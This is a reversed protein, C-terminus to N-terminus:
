PQSLRYEQADKVVPGPDIVGQDILDGIVTIMLNKNQDPVDAWPKASAERTQYNYTPAQREYTEHFFKAILETKTM